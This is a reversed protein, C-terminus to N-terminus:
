DAAAAYEGDPSFLTLFNDLFLGMCLVKKTGLSPAIAGSAGSSTKETM